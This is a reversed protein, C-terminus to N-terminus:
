LEGDTHLVLVIDGEVNFLLAPVVETSVTPDNANADIIVLPKRIAM